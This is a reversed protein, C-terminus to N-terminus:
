AAGRRPAGRGFARTRSETGARLRGINARHRVVIGAAAVVAFAIVPWPEGAVICTVPYLVAATLSALSVYRFLWLVVAFVV